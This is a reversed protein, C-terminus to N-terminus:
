IGLLRSSSSVLVQLIKSSRMLEFSEWCRRHQWSRSPWRRQWHRGGRSALGTAASTWPLLAATRQLQTIKKRKRYKTFKLEWRDSARFRIKQVIQLTFFWLFRGGGDASEENTYIRAAVHMCIEGSVQNPWREADVEFLVALDALDALMLAIRSANKNTVCM